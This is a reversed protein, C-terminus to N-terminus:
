MTLDYCQDHAFFFNLIMLHIALGTYTFYFTVYKKNNIILNFVVHVLENKDVTLIHTNHLTHVIFPVKINPSM